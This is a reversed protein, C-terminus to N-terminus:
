PKVVVREKEDWHGKGLIGKLAISESCRSQTWVSLYKIRLDKM